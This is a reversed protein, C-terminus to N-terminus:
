AGQPPRARRETATSTRSERRTRMEDAIAVLEDTSLLRRAAPFIQEEELRLHELLTARLARAPEILVTRDVPQGAAIREWERCLASIMPEHELHERAQRAMVEAVDAPARTLLRPALTEDEDLTHNPLAELFYQLLRRAADVAEAEPVERSEALKVALETFLRIRKHCELLFEIAGTTVPPQQASRLTVFM